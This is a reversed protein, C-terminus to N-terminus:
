ETRSKLSDLDSEHHFFIYPTMTVKHILRAGAWAGVFAAAIATFLLPGHQAVALHALRDRYVLLRAIDVLCAIAVGTGIFTQTSMGCKLLFISRLAGQHGSLGGFFGSLMGGLPLWRADMAWTRARPLLEVLAFSVMLVAIVLNVPLVFHQRGWLTYTAMSEMYALRMLCHAGVFAMALAPLGFRVAVHRNVYRGVLGFKFLNNLLHVVATAGIAIEMPFYLAFVPLLITGLGFGSFLTLGSVFIACSAVIAYEV